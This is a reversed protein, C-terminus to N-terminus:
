QIGRRLHSSAPALLALAAALWVALTMLGPIAASALAHPEAPQFEFDPISQWNEASVRRRRDAADGTATDDAYSVADAQMQNLRQVIAYRYAEAQDLFRQHGSLDTGAAAMSLRRLAIAPSALGFRDMIHSQAAQAEFSERSYRDFLSSTLQEGEVALLGKYNVPLDEIREVGYRELVRQKFAAFFPDDPNHSDGMQRLDKQIAIDSELRTTLPRASAAIDPAIRPLLIVTVTWLTLLTLLADRRRRARASVLLVILVWLLVYLAYGTAMMSIPAWASGPEGAIFAFTILAPLLTMLGISALALGKGALLAGASVGQALLLRLTGTERERTLVGYGLFILLLPALTQLVFSPTLQGFRILLSSQRVDGFNASNQRHGELFMASGTFSDVGHDFAALAGPPRFVFHGYHVVRHPHRDPQHEFAENAQTQFRARLASISEHHSWATVASVFILLLLLGISLLAVRNRCMLRLEDRAILTIASV